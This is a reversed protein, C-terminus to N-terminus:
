DDDGETVEYVEDATLGHAEAHVREGAETSPGEFLCFVTGTGEDVWYRKYEVGHEDQVELDLEHAAEVEEVTADLDRHIDMYLAM